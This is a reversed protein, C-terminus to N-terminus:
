EWVGAPVTTDADGCNRTPVAVSSDRQAGSEIPLVDHFWMKQFIPNVSVAEQYLDASASAGVVVFVILFDVALAFHSVKNRENLAAADSKSCSGLM